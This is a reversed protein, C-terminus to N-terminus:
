CSCYYYYDVCLIAPIDDGWISHSSIGIYENRRSFERGHRRRRKKRRCYVIIIVAIVILLILGGGGASVGIILTERNDPNDFWTFEYRLYGVRFEHFGVTLQLCSHAGWFVIRYSITYKPASLLQRSPWSLRACMVDCWMVDCWMVDCWM